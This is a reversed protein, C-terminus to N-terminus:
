PTPGEALPRDNMRTLTVGERPYALRMSPDGLLSFNRNISGNLSNNKTDRM